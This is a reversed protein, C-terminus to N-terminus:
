HGGSNQRLRQCIFGATFLFYSFVGTFSHAIWSYKLSSQSTAIVHNTILLFTTNGAGNVVLGASIWFRPQLSVPLSSDRLAIFLIPLSAFVIMSSLISRTVFNYVFFNGSIAMSVGWVLIFFPISYRYVQKLREVGTWAALAWLFCGYEIPIQLNMQWLNNVGLMAMVTGSLSIYLDIIFYIVLLRMEQPFAQYHKVGIVVIYITIAIGLLGLTAFVIAM